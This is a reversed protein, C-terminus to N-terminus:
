GHRFRGREGAFRRRAFLVQALSLHGPRRSRHFRWARCARAIQRYTTQQNDPM